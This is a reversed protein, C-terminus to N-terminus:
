LKLYGKLDEVYEEFAEIGKKNIICTTQPMKGKFGKEVNIYGANELKTLAIEHRINDNTLLRGSYDIIGTEGDKNTPLM